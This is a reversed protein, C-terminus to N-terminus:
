NALTVPAFNGLADIHIARYPLPDDGRLLVLASGDRVYVHVDSVSAGDHAQDSFLVVDPASPLAALPAMRMRVSTVSKGTLPGPTTGLGLVFTRGGLDAAYLPGGVDWSLTVRGSAHSECRDANCRVQTVAHHDFWTWTAAHGECTLAAGVDVIYRGPTRTWEAGERAAMMRWSKREGLASDFAKLGVVTATTTRCLQLEPSQGVTDGLDVPPELPARGPPVTQAFWRHATVWVLQDGVLAVTEATPPLETVNAEADAHPRVLEFRDFRGRQTRVYAKPAAPTDQPSPLKTSVTEWCRAERL